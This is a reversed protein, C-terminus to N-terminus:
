TGSFQHHRCLHAGRGVDTRNWAGSTRPAQSSHFQLVAPGLNPPRPLDRWPMLSLLQHVASSPGEWNQPGSLVSLGLWACVGHHCFREPGQGPWPLLWPWWATVGIFASSGNPYTQPVMSTLPKLVWDPTHPLSGQLLSGKQAQLSLLHQRSSLSLSCKLCLFCCLDPVLLSSALTAPASHPPACSLSFYVCWTCPRPAGSHKIKVWLAM